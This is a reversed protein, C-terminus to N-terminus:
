AHVSITYHISDLSQRKLKAKHKLLWDYDEKVLRDLYPIAKDVIPKIKEYLTGNLADLKRLHGIGTLIYQTMYRDDPGGKFWTFAEM